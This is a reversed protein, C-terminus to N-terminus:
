GSSKAFQLIAEAIAVYDGSFHHGHGIRRRAVISPLQPCQSDKEGDGYICQMPPPNRLGAIQPAVPLGDAGKGIWDSLRVEFTATSSLGLLNVSGVKALVDEPLAGVVFPMVDAVFSYGVLIVRDKRWSELYYRIVRSVDASTEEPTRKSWFYKLSNLAVTAIGQSAFEGTIGKDLGAWGGDGTLLVVLERNENEGRVEVLPLDELIATKVAPAAAHKALTEYSALFQPVWNREVSFGHGVKPLSVVRAAPIGAAFRDVAAADCVEDQQGQFAIWPEELKPAPEFVFDGRPNPAYHLGTGRCLARGKCDQDACFGLSMAGAFTGPPSQVLAAYVLTAGSSYGVLVPVRYEPLGLRKQVDHSLREFDAALDNCGAPAIRGLADLYNRVDIGVVVAGADVLHKAMGVVGLNWGGDGSIFLAVSKVPGSPTEVTVSGFRGGPLVQEAAGAAGAFGALGLALLALARAKM